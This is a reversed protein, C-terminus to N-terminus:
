YQEEQCSATTMKEIARFRDERATPLMMPEVMEFISPAKENPRNNM